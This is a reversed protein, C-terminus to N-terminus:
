AVRLGRASYLPVPKTTPVAPQHDGIMMHDKLVQVALPAFAQHHDTALAPIGFDMRPLDHGPGDIM